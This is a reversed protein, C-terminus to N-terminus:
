VIICDKKRLNLTAVISLFEQWNERRYHVKGHCTPCLTILNDCHNNLKNYDIHHIPFKDDYELQPVFCLKCEYNNKKRIIEKLETTWEASYLEFSKGGQWNYHDKGRRIRKLILEKSQKKGILWPTFVKRGKSWTNKGKLAQCIKRRFDKNEWLKKTRIKTQMKFKETHKFTGKKGKNWPIHGKKFRTRGTNFQPRGKIFPM